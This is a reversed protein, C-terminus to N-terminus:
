STKCIVNFYTLFIVPAASLFLAFVTCTFTTESDFGFKVIGKKHFRECLLCVSSVILKFVMCGRFYQVDCIEM